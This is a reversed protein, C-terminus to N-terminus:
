KKRPKVDSEQCAHLMITNKQGQISGEYGRHWDYSLAYAFISGTRNFATCAISNGMKPFSKLKQKSDKDWFTFSGDSGATSFTGHIPHFSIANVAYVTSEKSGPPGDRHCKFSFNGNEDKQNAYQISVRGEISGVAFGGGTTFNSVVRTQMKLMSDVTRAPQYPNNMNFLSIKRDATGVTLLGNWYDMSLVKDPMAVSTMQQNTRCDWYKVTKDWSGTACISQNQDVFRITKVAMDHKGLIRSQGTELDYLRVTNDAGGSALTKGDPSWHCCLAPQEHAYAAKGVTTGNGMVEWIRVEVDSPQQPQLLM